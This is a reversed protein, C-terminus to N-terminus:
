AIQCVFVMHKMFLYLTQQDNEAEETSRIRIGVATTAAYIVLGMMALLLFAGMM